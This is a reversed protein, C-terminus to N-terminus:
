KITKATTFRKNESNYFELEGRTNLIFYEGNSGGEKLNYQTGHALKKEQLEDDMDEGDKFITKIFTKNDKKYIVYKSSTYKEEQWKGVVEGDVADALKNSISDQKATSGMIEIEVQPDFHSIAWASSNDGSGSLIYFIYFRRQKPKSSYLEDALTAIQGVTIKQNIEVTLENKEIAANSEDKVITYTFHDPLPEKKYKGITGTNNNCTTLLLITTVTTLFLKKM